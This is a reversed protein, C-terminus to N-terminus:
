PNAAIRAYPHKTWARVYHSDHCKEFARPCNSPGCRYRLSSCNGVANKTTVSHDPQSAARRSLPSPQLPRPREPRSAADLLRGHHTRNEASTADSRRISRSRRTQTRSTRRRFTATAGAVSVLLTGTTFQAPNAAALATLCPSCFKSPRARSLRSPAPTTYRSPYKTSQATM